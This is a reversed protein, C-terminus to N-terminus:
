SSPYLTPAPRIREPIFNRPGDPATYHCKGILSKEHTLGDSHCASRGSVRASKKFMRPLSGGM